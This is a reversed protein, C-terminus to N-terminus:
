LGVGTLNRVISLVFLICSIVIQLLGSLILISQLHPIWNTINLEIDCNPIRTYLSILKPFFFRFVYKVSNYPCFLIKIIKKFLDVACVSSFTYPDSYQLWQINDAGTYQIINVNPKRCISASGARYTLGTCDINWMKPCLQIICSFFIIYISIDCM